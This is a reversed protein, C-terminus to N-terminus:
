HQQTFTNVDSLVYKKYLLLYVVIIICGGFLVDSAFHAGIVVRSLQVAIAWSTILTLLLFQVWKKKGAAFILLPLLMWGMAAHGSPFSQNGNIGNPIYWVTFNTYLPELDRFRIRGWLQKIPQVLFLYGYLGLLVSIISYVRAREPFSIRKILLYFLFNIAFWFLYNYLKYDKVLSYGGTTGYYVIVSLHRLLYVGGLFIFLSLSYYKVKNTSRYSALFILTASYLTLLGPIEGFNQLFNAWGSHENVVAISIQLDTFAFYGALIAWIIM